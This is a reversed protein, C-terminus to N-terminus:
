LICMYMYLMISIVRKVAECFSIRFFAIGKVDIHSTQRMNLVKALIDFDKWIKKIQRQSDSSIRELEIILGRDQQEM